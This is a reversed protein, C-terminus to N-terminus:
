FFVQLQDHGRRKAQLPELGAVVFDESLALEVEAPFYEPRSKEALQELMKADYIAVRTSGPLRHSIMTAM